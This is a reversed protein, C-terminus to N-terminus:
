SCEQLHMFATEREIQGPADHPGNGIPKAAFHSQRAERKPREEITPHRAYGIPEAIHQVHGAKLFGHGNAQESEPYMLGVRKPRDKVVQTRRPNEHIHSCINAGEGEGYRRAPPIRSDDTNLGVRLDYRQQLAIHGLVPSRIDSGNM